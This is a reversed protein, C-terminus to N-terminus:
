LNVIRVALEKNCLTASDMYVTHRDQRIALPEFSWRKRSLMESFAKLEHHKADPYNLIEDFVIITEDPVINEELTELVCKTSSYLDCDVHLLGMRSDKVVDDYFKPVTDEFWGPFLQVNNRVHPLRGNMTFGGKQYVMNGDDWAEPLGEFSDFGYITHNILKEAIENITRGQYVGFEAVISKVPFEFNSLVYSLPSIGVEPCTSRIKALIEEPHM